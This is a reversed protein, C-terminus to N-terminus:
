ENEGMEEDEDNKKNWDNDEEKTKAEERNRSRENWEDTKIQKKWKKFYKPM